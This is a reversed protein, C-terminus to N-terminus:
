WRPLTMWITNGKDNFGVEDALNRIIFLGRGRPSDLLSPDRPDPVRSPDFGPGEDSVALRIRDAFLEVSVHVSKGPDGANGCLMANALAEALAVRLRFITQRSPPRHAFCESALREVVADVLAIDTHLRLALAEEPGYDGSRQVREVQLVQAQRHAM